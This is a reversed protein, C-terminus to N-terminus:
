GSEIPPDEEPHFIDCRSGVPGPQCGIQQQCNRYRPTRGRQLPKCWFIELYRLVSAPLVSMESREFRM